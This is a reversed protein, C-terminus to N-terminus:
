RTPPARPPAAPPSEVCAHRLSPWARSPLGARPPARPAPEATGEPLRRSPGGHDDNIPHRFDHDFLAEADGIAGALDDVVDKEQGDGPVRPSGESEELGERQAEEQDRGHDDDADKDIVPPQRRM